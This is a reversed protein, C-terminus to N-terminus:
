RGAEPDDVEELPVLQPNRTEEWVDEPRLEEVAAPLAPADPLAQRPTYYPAASYLQALRERRREPSLRPPQVNPARVFRAPQGPTKLVFQGTPLNQLRQIQTTFFEEKTWFTRSSVVRRRAYEYFPVEADSQGRGSTISAQRARGATLSAQRSRSRQRSLGVSVQHTWGTARAESEHTARSRSFTQMESSAQGDSDSEVEVDSHAAGSFIVESSAGGHAVSTTLPSMLAGGEGPFTEGAVSSAIVGSAHGASELEGVSHGSTHTHMTTSGFATTEGNGWSRGRAKARSTTWGTTWTGSVGGGVTEGAGVTAGSSVGASVTGAASRTLTRVRRRSEIPELELSTLEDKISVPNFAELFLNPAQRELTAYDLGGFVIKTRTSREVSALVRDNGDEDRLQEDFQNALLVSLGLERGLDLARALDPACWEQFEDCIVYVPSRAEPPRAFVHSVLDTTLLRALLRADDPRLPRYLEINAIFIKQGQLIECFDLSAPQTLIDRVTPDTLFGELRGVSSASLQERRAASLHFFFELAQRLHADRLQQVRHIITREARLVDLAALLDLELERAAALSLYLLRGLQPFQDFSNQGWASRIAERVAKAHTAPSLGNPRLPNYATIFQSDGPDFSVLRKAFGAGLVFDRAMRGLDGKVSFLVVTADRLQCLTQFIHFLLRTKGSGTPGLARLHTPLQALPLYVPRGLDDTGLWLGRRHLDSFTRWPNFSKGDSHADARSSTPTWRSASFPTLRKLSRM